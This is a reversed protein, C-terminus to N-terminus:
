LRASVLEEDMCEVIIISAREPDDGHAFWLHRDGDFTRRGHYERKIVYSLTHQHPEAFVDIIRYISQGAM